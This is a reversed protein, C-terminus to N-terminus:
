PRLVRPRLRLWTTRVHTLFLIRSTTFLRLRGNRGAGVDLEIASRLLETLDAVRADVQAAVDAVVHAVVAAALDAQAVRPLDLRAAAPLAVAGVAQPAVAGVAEDVLPRRIAALVSNIAAPAVPASVLDVPDAWARAM